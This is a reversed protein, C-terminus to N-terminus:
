NKVFTGKLSDGAGFLTLTHNITSKVLHFLRNREFGIRLKEDTSTASVNKEWTVKRISKKLRTISIGTAEIRHKIFGNDNFLRQITRPTYYCLHEPYSLVNWREKLLFRSLSNFNPTTLYIIGGNRLLTHFNRVEQKPNNIHELVEFSTVVDFSGPPYLQSDLKGHHMNIGKERCIRVAEDTLESGYVEWGRQKAIELFYGIGCGVDM